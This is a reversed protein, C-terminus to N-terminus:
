SREAHIRPRRQKIQKDADAGSQKDGPEANEAVETPADQLEYILTIGGALDPGFKFQGFMAFSSRARRARRARPQDELRSGADELATALYNGVMIPLVFLALLMLWRHGRAGVPSSTEPRLAPQKPRRRRSPIARTKGAPMATSRDPPQEDTTGADRAADTPTEPVASAARRRRKLPPRCNSGTADNCTADNCASRGSTRRSERRGENGNRRSASQM